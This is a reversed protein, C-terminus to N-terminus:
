FPPSYAYLAPLLFLPDSSGGIGQGPNGDNVTVYPFGPRGAANRDLFYQLIAGDTVRDGVGLQAFVDDIQFYGELNKFSKEVPADWGLAWLRLTIDLDSGDNVLPVWGFNCRYRGSRLGFFVAGYQNDYTYLPPVNMGYTGASGQNFVKVQLWHSSTLQKYYAGSIELYGKENASVGLLNLLTDKSAMSEFPELELTKEV